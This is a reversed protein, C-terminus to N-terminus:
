SFLNLILFFSAIVYGQEEAHRFGILSNVVIELDPGFLRSRM